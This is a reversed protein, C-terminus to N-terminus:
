HMLAIKVIILTLSRLSYDLICYAGDESYINKSKNQIDNLARNIKRIYACPCSNINSLVQPWLNFNHNL